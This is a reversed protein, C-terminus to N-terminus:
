QITEIFYKANERSLTLEYTFLSNLTTEKNQYQVDVVTEYKGKDNEVVQLITVSQLVQDRLGREVNAMFPLKEDSTGYSTFFETLFGDLKKQETSTIPEGKLEKQEATMSTKLEREVLRPNQYVAYGEGDTTVPVVIEISNSISKPEQKKVTDRVKEAEKGDEERKEKKETAEEAESIEIIEYDATFHVNAEHSSIRETEIYQLNKLTRSGKFEELSGLRQIDYGNVFFTSLSELRSKREEAKEPITFYNRLFDETFVVISHSNILDSQNVQNLQEEISNEQAKVSNRITQYKSFFIVNFLLSLFIVSFFVISTIRTSTRRSFPVKRTGEKGNGTGMRKTRQFLKPKM